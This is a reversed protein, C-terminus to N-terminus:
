STHVGAHMFEPQEGRIIAECADSANHYDREYYGHNLSCLKSLYLTVIPHSNRWDTGKALRHSEDCIAQIAQAFSFAVGSLNCADQCEIATRAADQYTLTSKSPTAVHFQAATDESLM